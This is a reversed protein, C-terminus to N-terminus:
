EVFEQFPRDTKPESGFRLVHGDPDEVHMELAWSYNRPPVRIKAGRAFYEEYLREVDDVGVWVWTGPQGQSGECLYIGCGDRSVYTFGDGWPAKAFGLIDVYYRLSTEISAVRLIPQISEFRINVM